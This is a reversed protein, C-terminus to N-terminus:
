RKMVPLFASEIRRGDDELRVKIRAGPKLGLSAPREGAYGRLRDLAFGARLNKEWIAVEYLGLDSVRVIEATVTEM